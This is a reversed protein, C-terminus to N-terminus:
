SRGLVVNRNMGINGFNVRNEKGLEVVLGIRQFALADAFQSDAPGARREGVRDVVGATRPDPVVRNGQVLHKRDQRHM